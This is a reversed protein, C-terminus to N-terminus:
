FGEVGSAAAKEDRNAELRWKTDTVELVNPDKAWVVAAAGDDSREWVHRSGKLVMHAAVHRKWKHGQSNAELLGEVKRMNTDDSIPEPDGNDDRFEYFECVSIGRRLTVFVEIGKKSFRLMKDGGAPVTEKDTAEWLPEGFRARVDEETEGLRAVCEHCTSGGVVLAIVVCTVRKFM